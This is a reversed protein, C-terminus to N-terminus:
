HLKLAFREANKSLVAWLAAALAFLAATVAPVVAASGTTAALVIPAATLLLGTLTSVMASASQKVVEADNKWDLKPLWLNVALGFVAAFLAYSLPTIFLYPWVSPSVGLAVGIVVGAILIGPVIVTLSVLIKSLFWDRARVPLSRVIWLRKGEMSISSGTTASMVTVFGLALPILATLDPAGPIGLLASLKGREVALLVALALMMVVGFATNTLYITSSLYRKWEGRYLAALAGSRALTLRVRAGNARPASLLRTSLRFFRWSVFLAAIFVAAASLLAFLLASVASGDALARLFLASPPYLSSAQGALLAAKEGAAASMSGARMSLSMILFVFAIQVISNLVSSRKVGATAETLLTGVAAGAATPVAPAFLTLLLALPYFWWAPSAYVAYVALAPVLFMAGYCLHYAYLTTMRAAVIASKPVPWSMLTDYDGPAFLVGRVTFVTFIVLFVSVGSVILPIMAPLASIPKLAEALLLSYMSSVYGLSVIMVLFMVANKRSKKREGEDRSFRARNLGFLSLLQLKTLIWYERM